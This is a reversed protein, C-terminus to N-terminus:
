HTLAYTVINIGLPYSVRVSYEQFYEENDGEREWGDGIDNNHCMLAMLRDSDDFYGWFHPGEDGEPDGHWYEFTHGRQWARISPVQPKGKLHYVLNFIRHGADLERPKRGPLVRQMERKVNEWGAPAWFDDAMLFGGRLLYNGLADAESKNLSMGGVNSMYLFPYDLLKPDVLDLIVGDPDVKLATLEHLRASFNWDCDPFDNAWGGHTGNSSYRARAFTFVDKPLRSDIEWMPFESRDPIARGRRGGFGGRSGGQAGGRQAIFDGHQAIFDSQQAIFDGQQAIFTPSQRKLADVHSHDAVVLVPLLAVILLCRIM